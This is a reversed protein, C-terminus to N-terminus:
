SEQMKHSFKLIIFEAPRVVALGIEVNMFGDLIDQATMTEGLGVKVFFAQDPKAGALAGQRWLNTLFNDIMGKVKVWTNGDNPEFVFMGTARKVSEEVMNFTRRVSVYRWESDNGALTRGGWILTGKGTFARIANISKGANTDVNMDDQFTNDVNVVPGIVSSLSVNAPAKWVGRLDDIMAYVGVIAGSPPLISTTQSIKAVINNYLGYAGALSAELTSEYSAAATQVAYFFSLVSSYAGAVALKAMNLRHDEDAANVYATNLAADTTTAFAAPAIGLVTLAKNLDTAASTPDETFFTDASPVAVMANHNKILTKFVDAVGSSTVISAINNKLLFAKSSTKSAPNPPTTVPTPLTDQFTKISALVKAAYEYLAQVAALRGASNAATSYNGLLVKFQDEFTKSPATLIGAPLPSAAANSSILAGLYNVAAVANNLDYILQIINNDTTLSDLALPTSASPTGSFLAIDRYDISRPLASYIYPAYAAGYKLNNIGIKDRFDQIRDALTKGATNEDSPLLDCVVFRNGVNAAQLLAKQQFDYLDTTGTCLAADPCLILTPEDEKAVIDLAATLPAIQPGTTSYSGVSMIYCKGGGNEYFLRLSEYMYYTESSVVQSVNNSTDLYVNYTVSPGAGYAANYEKLSTIETPVNTLSQGNLTAFETYGIFVPVATDVQAVSPPFLSIEEVYVGPTKYTSPM